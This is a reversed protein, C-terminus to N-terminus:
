NSGLLSALPTRSTPCPSGALRQLNSLSPLPVSDSRGLWNVEEEEVLPSHQLFLQGPLRAIQARTLDVYVIRQEADVGGVLETSVLRRRRGFLTGTRVALFDPEDQGPPFLPSEM